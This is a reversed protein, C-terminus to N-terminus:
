NEERLCCVLEAMMERHAENEMTEPLEEWEESGYCTGVLAEKALGPFEADLCDSWVAAEKVVGGTVHFRVLVEGWSLKKATEYQFPIRRGFRWEWSKFRRAGEEIEETLIRSAPFDAPKLGFVEGFVRILADQMDSIQMDPVYECLNVVRSKVSDVGKSQLKKESVRLYHEMEGKDARILITGHHCCFDGTRYFANGSFKRGDATLDNRGDRVAPIGFSQVAKLIVEAQRAANYDASRILFTFNLNGMDHFVAGGGSLRRALYGGDAELERVRCEKWANQNYGIVVTKRNQWLYLICEGPAAHRLLYEELAINHYPNVSDSIHCSLERLSM